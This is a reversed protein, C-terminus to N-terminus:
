SSIERLLWAPEQQVYKFFDRYKYAPFKSKFSDIAMNARRQADEQLQLVAEASLREIEEREVVRVILSALFNGLTNELVSSKLRQAAEQRTGSTYLDLDNGTALILFDELCVRATERVRRDPESSADASVIENALRVLFGPTSDVQLGETLRDLPDATTRALALNMLHKYINAVIPSTFQKKLFAASARRSLLDSIEKRIDNQSIKANSMSGGCFRYSVLGARGSGGGGGSGGSGGGGLSGTGM